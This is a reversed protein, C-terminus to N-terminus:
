VTTTNHPIELTYVLVIRDRHSAFLRTCQMSHSLEGMRMNIVSWLWLWKPNPFSCVVGDAGQGVRFNKVKYTNVYMCAHNHMYTHPPILRGGKLTGAKYRAVINEPAISRTM